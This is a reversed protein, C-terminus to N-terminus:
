KGATQALIRRLEDPTPTPSGQMLNPAALNPQMPNVAGGGAPGGPMSLGPPQGPASGMGGPMGGPAGGVGAGGQAGRNIANTKGVILMLLQQCFKLTAGPAAMASAVQPILDQLAQHFNEPVSSSTRAM